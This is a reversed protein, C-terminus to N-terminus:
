NAGPQSLLIEALADPQDWTAGHGSGPLVEVNKGGILRRVSPFFRDDEPLIWRVNESYLNLRAWSPYQATFAAQFGGFENKWEPYALETFLWMGPPPSAFTNSAFWGADRAFLATLDRSFDEKDLPPPAVLFVEATDTFGEALLSGASFFVMRPRSLRLSACLERLMEREEEFSFSGSRVYTRDASLLAPIILRYRDKLRPAMNFWNLAGDVLFGHILVMPPLTEDGSDYYAITFNGTEVMQYECGLLRMALKFWPQPGANWAAAIFVALLVILIRRKHRWM